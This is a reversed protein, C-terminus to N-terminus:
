TQSLESYAETTKIDNLYQNHIQKSQNGEALYKPLVSVVSGYNLTNLVWNFM